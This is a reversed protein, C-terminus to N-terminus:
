SRSRYPEIQEQYTRDITVTGIGGMVPVNIMNTEFSVRATVVGGPEWADGCDIELQTNRRPLGREDLIREVIREANQQGSSPDFATACARVAERAAADGMAAAEFLFPLSLLLAATPFLLFAASLVLEIAGSGQEDGSRGAGGGKGGIM